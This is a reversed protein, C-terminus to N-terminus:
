VIEGKKEEIDQLAKIKKNVEEVAINFGLREHYAYAQNLLKNIIDIVETPKKGVLSNVRNNTIKKLRVERLAEKVAKEIASDLFHEVKKKTAIEKPENDAIFWIPFKEDFEERAQKQISKLNM